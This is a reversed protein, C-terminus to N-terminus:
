DTYRPGGRYAALRRYASPIADLLDSAILGRNLSHAAQGHLWVAAAAADFPAAGAARVGAVIGALVDGSGATALTPPADWNIAAAGDPAAIVTDPGKAVVVAGSRSAAARAQDLKSGETQGFLRRFEGDHPTLIASRAEAILRFLDEPADAFATLADADLVLDRGAGAAIAALRRARDGLGLGPGLVVTTFRPDELLGAFDEPEDMPRVMVALESAAYIPLAARPCAITVLGAGARLAARAALRAAGTTEAGGAVLAHGRRYKHGSPDLPPPAAPWLDPGNEWANAGVAAAAAAPIGIDAVHVDGALFRGPALLHGPKCAFFTVTLAAQAAPGLAEGSDGNVGSPLDVATVPAPHADMAATLSAAEGELPRALGAGFLADVILEAGELLAPAAVEVPSTWREAHVKADGAIRDRKGLLGIRVPWGAERLLRAVVWGDGGNAGPGALIVTPRPSWRRRVADVIAAGANQMLEVGPVGAAIAYEDAAYMQRVTLVPPASM